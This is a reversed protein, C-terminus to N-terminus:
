HGQRHLVTGSDHAIVAIEAPEATDAPVGRVRQKGSRDAGTLRTRALWCGDFFDKQGVLASWRHEIDVVRDGADTILDRCRKTPDILQARDARTSSTAPVPWTEGSSISRSRIFRTV